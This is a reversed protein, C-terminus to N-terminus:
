RLHSCCRSSSARSGVTPCAGHVSTAPAGPSTRSGDRQEEATYEDVAVGDSNGTGRVDLRVTVFGERAFTIANARDSGADLDDKRYPIHELLAPFRGDRNPRYVDGSLRLGDSTRVGVDHELLVAGGDLEISTPPRDPSPM